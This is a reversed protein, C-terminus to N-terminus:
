DPTRQQLEIHHTWSYPTNGKVQLPMVMTGPSYRSLCSTRGRSRGHAATTSNACSPSRSTVVWQLRWMQYCHTCCFTARLFPTWLQCLVSLSRHVVCTRWKWKRNFMARACQRYQTVIAKTDRLMMAALPLWLACVTSHGKFMRALRLTQSGKLPQLVLWGALWGFLQPSGRLDGGRARNTYDYWRKGCQQAWHCVIFLTASVSVLKGDRNFVEVHAFLPSNMQLCYAKHPPMNNTMDLTLGRSQTNYGPMRRVVSPFLVFLVKTLITSFHWKPVIWYISMVVKQCTAVVPKDVAAERPLGPDVTPWRLIIVLHQGQDELPARPRCVQLCIAVNLGYRATFV